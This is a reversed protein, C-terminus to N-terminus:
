IQNFQAVQSLKRGSKGSGSKRVEKKVRGWRDLKQNVKEGTDPDIFRKTKPGFLKAPSSKMKFPTAM